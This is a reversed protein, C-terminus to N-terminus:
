SKRGKTRLAADSIRANMGADLARANCVAPYYGFDTAAPKIHWCPVGRPVSHVSCAVRSLVRPIFHRNEM